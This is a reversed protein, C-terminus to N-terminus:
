RISRTRAQFSNLNLICGNTFRIRANAIDETASLVPVGIAEVREVDAGALQLVIDLDHIMLDLVVSVDTARGPFPGIRHAEIFRPRTLVPLVARLASSFREVHGVQLIRNGGRAAEIIERAADRSAAIPKEIFVDLGSRLLPVAVRAHEVTPVAIFVAEAARTVADLEDLPAVGLREAVESARTADLDHVGVLEAVASLEALKEAHLKGM